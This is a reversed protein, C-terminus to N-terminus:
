TTFGSFLKTAMTIRQAKKLFKHDVIEAFQHKALYTVDSDSHSRTTSSSFANNLSSNISSSCYCVNLSNLSLWVKRSNEVARSGALFYVAHTHATHGRYYYELLSPVLVVTSVILFSNRPSCFIVGFTQFRSYKFVSQHWKFVLLYKKKLKM